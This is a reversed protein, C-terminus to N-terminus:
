RALCRSGSRPIMSFVVRSAWSDSSVIPAPDPVSITLDILDPQAQLLTAFLGNARHAGGPSHRVGTVVSGSGQRSEAWGARRLEAYATSVTTRSVALLDALEREPPLTAGSAVAGGELQRQLAVALQRYLPGDGGDWRGLLAVLHRTAETMELWDLLIPM